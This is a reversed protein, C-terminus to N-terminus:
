THIKELESDALHASPINSNTVSLSLATEFVLLSVLYAVKLEVM